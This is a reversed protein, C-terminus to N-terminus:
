IYLLRRSDVVPVDRAVLLVAIDDYRKAGKGHRSDIDAEALGAAAAAASQFQTDVLAHAFPAPQTLQTHLHSRNTSGARSIDSKVLRTPQFPSKLFLFRTNGGM